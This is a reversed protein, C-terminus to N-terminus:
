VAQETRGAVIDILPRDPCAARLEAFFSDADFRRFLGQSNAAVLILRLPREVAIDACRRKLKRWHRPTFFVKTADELILHRRRLHDLNEEIMSETLPGRCFVYDGGPERTWKNEQRWWMGLDAASRDDGDRKAGPADFEPMPPLDFLECQWALWAAADAPTNAVDASVVLAFRANDVIAVQTRREFAGDVLNLYTGHRRLHVLAAALQANNGPGILEM